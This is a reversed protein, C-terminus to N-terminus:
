EADFAPHVRMTGEPVSAGLSVGMVFPDPVGERALGARAALGFRGYSASEDPSQGFPRVLPHVGQSTAGVATRAQLDAAVGPQRDWSSSCLIFGDAAACHKDGLKGKRALAVVEGVMHPSLVYATDVRLGDRKWPPAGGCAHHRVRKNTRGARFSDISMGNRYAYLTFAPSLETGPTNDPDCLVHPLLSLRREHRPLREWVPDVLPSEYRYDAWQAHIAGRLSATDLVQVV